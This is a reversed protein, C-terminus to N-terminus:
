TKYIQLFTKVADQGMHTFWLGARAEIKQQRNPDHMVEELYNALGARFADILDRIHVACDNRGLAKAALALDEAKADGWAYVVERAKGEKSLNSEASFSHLIGCRAGYVDFATCPLSANKLLYRDVWNTFTSRTSGSDELSAVVDIGSYLLTLCPLIRKRALCEEVAELLTILNEEFPVMVGLRIL